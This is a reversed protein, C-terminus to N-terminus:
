VITWTYTITTIDENYEFDVGEEYELERLFYNDAKESKLAVTVTYTGKETASLTSGAVVEFFSEFPFFESFDVFTIEKSAGEEYEFSLSEPSSTYIVKREIVWEFNIAEISEEQRLEENAEWVYNSKPVVKIEYTGADSASFVSGTVYEMTNEDFEDVAVEHEVAVGDDENYTFRAIQSQSSVPRAIPKPTIEVNISATKEQYNFEIVYDGVDPIGDLETADIEYDTVTISSEDSYNASLIFNEKLFEISTGYVFSITNTDEDYDFSHASELEVDISELTVVVESENDSDGEPAPTSTESQGPTPTTNDDKKDGCASFILTCPIVLLMVVLFKLLRKKM